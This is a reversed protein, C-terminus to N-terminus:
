LRLGLPDLDRSLGKYLVSPNRKKGSIGAIIQKLPVLLRQGLTASQRRKLKNLERLEGESLGHYEAVTKLTEGKELYHVTWYSPDTKAIETQGDTSTPKVSFRILPKTASLWEPDENLSIPLLPTQIKLATFEFDPSSNSLTPTATDQENKYSQAMFALSQHLVNANSIPMLVTFPKSRTIAAKLYASNLLTFEEANFNALKAIAKLDKNVLQKIDTERDINVKIFHPENKVPRLKLGYAGPNEFITALALLRPVYEQTETPLDLSWFDTDLGETQNHAIAADVTGQGCNYAALALLWDGKFHSNLGSLFRIAAQTSVTVDLRADYDDMQDMGYERATSPIFQWIGAASMPSLATPQYASEVIPLLALDLPLGYKSLADVIHYLYPRARESVQYLYGSSYGAIHKSVRAVKENQKARCEEAMQKYSYALIGQQALSIVDAKKLAACNSIAVNQTKTKNSSGSKKDKASNEISEEAIPIEGNKFLEPHLGLRTRIRQVSPSKFASDDKALPTKEKPIFHLKKYLGEATASSPEKKAFRLRGLPTYRDEHSIDTKTKDGGTIVQRIKLKEPLQSEGQPLKKPTIVTNLRALEEDAIRLVDMTKVDRAASAGFPKKAALVPLEGFGDSAPSPRPIRIGARVRAWVDGSDAKAKGKRDHSKGRHSSKSSKSGKFGALVDGNYAVLSSSVFVILAIKLLRM